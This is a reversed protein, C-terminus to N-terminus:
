FALSEILNAWLDLYINNNKRDLCTLFFDLNQSNPGLITWNPLWPASVLILKFVAYRPLNQQLQIGPM